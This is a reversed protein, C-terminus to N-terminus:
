CTQAPHTASDMEDEQSGGLRIIFTSASTCFIDECLAIFIYSFSAPFFVYVQCGEGLWQRIKQARLFESLDSEVAPWDLDDGLLVGGPRMLRYAETIELLTEGKLHASDLYLFDKVRSTFPPTRLLPLRKNKSMNRQAKPIGVHSSQPRRSGNTFSNGCEVTVIIYYM